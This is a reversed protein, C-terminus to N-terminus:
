KKLKNSEVLGKIDQCLTHVISDLLNPNNSYGASSTEIVELYFWGKKEALIKKNEDREVSHFYDGNYEVAFRYIQKEEVDYVMIPIDIELSGLIGTDSMGVIIEYKKSDLYDYIFNVLQSRVYDQNKSGTSFNKLQEKARTKKGSRISKEYNQSKREKKNAMGVKHTSNLGLNKIQNQLTGFSLNLVPILKIVAIKQIYILYYLTRTYEEATKFDLALYTKKGIQNKGTLILAKKLKDYEPANVDLFKSKTRAEALEGRLYKIDQEFLSKNENYDQSYSWSFNYLQTHINVPNVGLRAAIDSKELKEVFQLHYLVVLFDYASGYIRKMQAKSISPLSLYKEKVEQPINDLNINFDNINIKTPMGIEKDKRITGAVGDYYDYRLRM